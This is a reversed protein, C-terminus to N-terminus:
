GIWARVCSPCLGNRSLQDEPLTKGCEGCDALSDDVVTVEYDEEPTLWAGVIAPDSHLHSITENIHNLIERVRQTLQEGEVESYDDFQIIVNKVTIVRM